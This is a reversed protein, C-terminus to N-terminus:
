KGDKKFKSGLREKMTKETVEIPKVEALKDISLKFFDEPKFPIPTKRSDRNANAFMAMMTRWPILNAEQKIREREIGTEYRLLYLGWDYWTLERFYEPSLGIEAVALIEM